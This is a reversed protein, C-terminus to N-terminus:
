RVLHVYDLNNLSNENKRVRRSRFQIGSILTVLLSLVRRLLPRLRLRPLIIRPTLSVPSNPRDLRDPGLRLGRPRRSTRNLSLIGTLLITLV